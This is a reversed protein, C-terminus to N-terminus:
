IRFDSHFLIVALRILVILYASYLSLTGPETGLLRRARARRSARHSNKASKSKCM